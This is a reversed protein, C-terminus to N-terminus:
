VPEFYFRHVNKYTETAVESETMDLAESIGSVGRKLDDWASTADELDTELLLQRIGIERMIGPTKPAYFNKIAPPFGFYIDELPINGKACASRISPLAGAKGSFAHFYIKPPLLKTKTKQRKRQGDMVKVAMQDHKHKMRERVNEFAAFLEGWASVVHISVPRQLEAALVLQEEFAKRQLEMPCALVRERKWISEEAQDSQKVEVWRNGDLGIEGVIADPHDLLRQKLEGLWDVEEDSSTLVDYLFWPHIGYCPVARYDRDRLGSVISDVKIYDRPHTSMIAAGDFTFPTQEVAAPIVLGRPGMHMHSHADFLKM